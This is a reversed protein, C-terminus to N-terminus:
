QIRWVEGNCGAQRDDDGHKAEIEQAVPQAVDEIWPLRLSSALWDQPDFIKRTQNPVRVASTCATSPTSRSIRGPSTRPRTPSDPDPFLTVARAIM